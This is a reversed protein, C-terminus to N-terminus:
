ANRPPVPSLGESSSSLSPSTPGGESRATTTAAGAAVTADHGEEHHEGVAGPTNAASDGEAEDTEELVGRHRRPRSSANSDADETGETHPSGPPTSTPTAERRHDGRAAEDNLRRFLSPTSASTLLKAPKPPPSPPMRLPSLTLPSHTYGSNPYAMKRKKSRSSLEVKERQLTRITEKLRNIEDEASDQYKLLRERSSTEMELIESKLDSITQNKKLLEADKLQLQRKLAKIDDQLQGITLIHEDYASDMSYAHASTPRSSVSHHTTYDETRQRKVASLSSHLEHSSKGFISDSIGRRSTAGEASEKSKNIKHNYTCVWCLVQGDVKSRSAEDKYFACMQLCKECQRPDGFKNRYHLCRQCVLANGYATPLMCISCPKPEGYKAKLSQCRPCATGPVSYKFDSKCYECQKFSSHHPTCVKCTTGSRAM